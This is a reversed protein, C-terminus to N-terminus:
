WGSIMLRLEACKEKIKRSNEKLKDDYYQLLKVYITPVAMFLTIRPSDKIEGILYKWTQLFTDM